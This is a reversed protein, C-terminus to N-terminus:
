LSNRLIPFSLLRLEIATYKVNLAKTMKHITKSNTRPSMLLAKKHKSEKIKNMNGKKMSCLYLISSGFVKSIIMMSKM